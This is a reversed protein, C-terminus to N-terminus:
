LYRVNVTVKNTKAVAAVAAGGSAAAAVLGDRAVGVAGSAGGRGQADQPGSANVTKAGSSGCRRNGHEVGAVARWGRRGTALGSWGSGTAVSLKV